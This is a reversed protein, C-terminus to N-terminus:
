GVMKMIWEIIQEVTWGRIIWDIIKTINNAVWTFAKTGYNWAWSAVSQAASVVRPGYQIAARYIQELVRALAGM